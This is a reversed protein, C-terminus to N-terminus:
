KGKHATHCAKCTAGAKKLAAQVGAKDEKKAAEDLATAHDLYGKSLKEWSEKSGKKPENKALAESLEVYEKTDEQIVSWDPKSSKLATKLKGSISKPGGNIKKMIEKVSPTAEYASGARVGSIGACALVALVSGLMVLKKM